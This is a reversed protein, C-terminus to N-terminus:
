VRPASDWSPRVPARGVGTAAPAQGVEADVDDAAQGLHGLAVVEGGQECAVGLQPGAVDQGHSV